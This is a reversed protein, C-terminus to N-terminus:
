VLCTHTFYSFPSGFNLVNGVSLVVHGVYNDPKFIFPLVQFFFLPGRLESALSPNLIIIIVCVAVVAIVVIAFIWYAGNCHLCEEWRLGVSLGEQCKGCLVGTRNHDCQNDIDNPKFVCGPLDGERECRCYHPPCFYTVLRGNIEGGWQGERLYVTRDDDACRLVGEITKDCKCRTGEFKFGPKCPVATVNFMYRNKLTSFIDELQFHHVSKNKVEDYVTNNALRYTLPLSQKTVPSLLHMINNLQLKTEADSIGTESLTAVTFITHNLEDYGQINLSVDEGPSLEINMDQNGEAKFHHTDTAIDYEPGILAKFEKAPLIFNGRYEFTNNWRIAEHVSHFPYKENWLCASLTSIYVAAGKIKASNKVFSVTAKWKSPATKEESYTVFCEPNYEHVFEYKSRTFVFIAGGVGSAYNQLFTMHSGPHLIIQSSSLLAAGGYSGSNKVFELSGKVLIRGEQYELAGAGHNERFINRGTFKANVRESTFASTYTQYNACHNQITCDIFEPTVNIPFGVPLTTDLRVAASARGSNGDLTANKFQMLSGSFPGFYSMLFVNLGGGRRSWNERIVCQTVRIANGSSAGSVTISLGGGGQSARNKSFSSRKIEMSNRAATQISGYFLGGGFTAHNHDFSSDEVLAGCSSANSRFVIVLGGGILNLGPLLSLSSPPIFNESNNVAATNGTFNTNRIVLTLGVAHEFVFGAGGSISVSTPIVRSDLERLIQLNSTNNVFSCGEVKVGSDFVNLGSRNNNRFGCNTFSINNSQWVMVVAAVYPSFEEFEINSVHVNYTTIAKADQLGITIVSTYLGNASRIVTSVNSSTIHIYRNMRPQLIQVDEELSYLRDEISFEFVTEEDFASEHLIQLAYSLSGCPKSANRQLCSSNDVGRKQSIFLEFTAGVSFMVMMFAILFM